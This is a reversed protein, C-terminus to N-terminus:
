KHNIYFPLQEKTIALVASVLIICVAVADILLRIKTPFKLTELLWDCGLLVAILAFLFCFGIGVYFMFAFLRITLEKTFEIPNYKFRAM